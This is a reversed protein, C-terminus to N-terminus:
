GLTKGLLGKNKCFMEMHSVKDSLLHVSFLTTLTKHLHQYPSNFAWFLQSAEASSSQMALHLVSAQPQFSIQLM